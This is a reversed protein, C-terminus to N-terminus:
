KSPTGRRRLIGIGLLASAILAYTAPEPVQSLSRDISFPTPNSYHAAYTIDSNLVQANNNLNGTFDNGCCTAVSFSTPTVNSGWSLRTPPGTQRFQGNGLYDGSADTTNADLDYDAYAYFDMPSSGPAPTFGISTSWGAAGGVPSGNLTHTMVITGYGAVTYTIQAVNTGISGTQIGTTLEVAPNAGLRTYLTEYFLQDVGNVTWQVVGSTTNLQLTANQDTLNIVAANALSAAGLALVALIKKM